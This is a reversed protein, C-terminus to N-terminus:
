RPSKRSKRSKRGKRGKRSKRSKRSKRGKGGVSTGKRDLWDRYKAAESRIMPIFTPFWEIAGAIRAERQRIAETNLGSLPTLKDKELGQCYVQTDKRLREYGESIPDHETHKSALLGLDTDTTERGFDIVPNKCYAYAEKLQENLALAAM